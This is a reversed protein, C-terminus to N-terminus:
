RDHSVGLDACVCDVKRCTSCRARDILIQLAELPDEEPGLVGAKLLEAILHPGWAEAHRVVNRAYGYALLLEGPGEEKEPPLWRSLDSPAEHPPQPVRPSM